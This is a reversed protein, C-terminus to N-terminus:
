LLFITLDRFVSIPGRDGLIYEKGGVGDTLDLEDSRLVTEGVGNLVAVHYTIISHNGHFSCSKATGWNAFGIARTPRGIVTLFLDRVDVVLRQSSIRCEATDRRYFSLYATTSRSRVWLRFSNILIIRTSWTYEFNLRKTCKDNIKTWFKYCEVNFNTKRVAACSRFALHQNSRQRGGFHYAGYRVLVNLTIKMKKRYINQDNNACVGDRHSFFARLM